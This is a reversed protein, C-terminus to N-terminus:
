GCNPCAAREDAGGDIAVREGCESCTGTVSYHPPVFDAPLEGAKQLIQRAGLLRRHKLRVYDVITFVRGAIPENEAWWKSWPAVSGPERVAQRFHAFCVELETERDSLVIERMGDDDIEPLRYKNCIM